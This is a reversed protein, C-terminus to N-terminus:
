DWVNGQGQDQGQQEAGVPPDAVWNEAGRPAAGWGGWGGLAANVEAAERREQQPEQQQQEQRDQRRLDQAGLGAHVGM